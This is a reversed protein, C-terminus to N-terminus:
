DQGKLQNNLLDPSALAACALLYGIDSALAWMGEAGCGEGYDVLHGLLRQFAATANSNDLAEIFEAASHTAFAEIEPDIM